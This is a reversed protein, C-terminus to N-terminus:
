ISLRVIRDRLQQIWRTTFGLDRHVEEAAALPLRALREPGPTSEAKEWAPNMSELTAVSGAHRANIKEQLANLSDTWALGKEFAAVKALPSQCSEREKLFTDVQRCLTGVEFFLDTLGQPIEEVIGPKRGLELELLHALRNKPDRLCQYAANLATSQDHADQREGADADHKRDPHAQSSLSHFRSKLDELDLWPRRPQDFTAFHDIM